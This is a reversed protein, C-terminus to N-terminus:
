GGSVEAGEIQGSEDRNIKISKEASPLQNIITTGSEEKPEAKQITKEVNSCHKDLMSQTDRKNKEILNSIENKAKETDMQRDKKAMDQEFAMEKAFLKKDFEFEMERKQLDMVRKDLEDGVKQKQAEISQALKDLEQKKAESQKQLEQTKKQLEQSQKQIQEPNPGKPEEMMKIQNEVDVGFRFRRAIELFMAKAAGFPLVKEKVMPMTGNMFQAMANMFESVQKQDETAEIDLTSNTEIDIKYSRTLDDRLVELIEDWSPMEATQKVEPPPPTPQYPPIQQGQAKAMESQQKHQIFKQQEQQKLFQLETIAKEKEDASPYPLGTLDKWFRTPIKQSAIDLMIRLSDRVYMQVDKQMNKLRMTGWSEKIQQAGLTESAKSQGRIVDSLGTIEYIVAKCQERATFLAQAVGVLESIPMFWISKDLGGELLTAGKDTPVLANDDEDMIQELEDGLAGDYVGRVKIAEIVRNLRTTIRNLEKAQNQYLTYLATPTLDNSKRLLMLPKPIPFFGTIELPDDQEKLYGDYQPSIWKVKKDSKDWIQYILATKRGKEGTDSTEEGEGEDTESYKIEKAKEKFLEKCEEEDLYEEFAIWPTKSWKKAYGFYVQSWKRSEGCVFAWKLNDGDFTADFKIQTVGRGPLAADLVADAMADDFKEYGEINTDLFYELIRTGAEEAAKVIPSEDQNFRRKVVPCPTQSYLAPKLTETNSYLINFPVEESKEGSYIEEIEEGAKRFDRERKKAHEIEDLWDQTNSDTIEM